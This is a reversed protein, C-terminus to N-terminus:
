MSKDTAGDARPAEVKKMGELEAESIYDFVKVVKRVGQVGAALETGRRGERETVKGMLYVVGQEVSVKFSNAFIDKADILSAKIKSAILLDNSRTSFSSPFNEELENVVERVNEVTRAQLEADQKAQQNPVQGVLLVKRDYVEVNISANDYRGSLRSSVKLGINKDEVQMGVTRRDTAALTTGLVAGGVLVPACATLGLSSALAAAILVRSSLLRFRFLPQM